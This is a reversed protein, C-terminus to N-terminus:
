SLSVDTTDFSTANIAENFTLRVSSITGGSATFASATVRPGTTDVPPATGFHIAANVNLRGGTVMKGALNPRVDVTSKLAQIVQLYTWDPHLDWVLAAAGTVHPTAMSTGSLTAYRNGAYTSLISVGPAALDVTTAGFNSFSALNDNRDTAAVALVNDQPYNSPYSSLSDNNSGNNGAAAIFVHAAARATNIAPSWASSS